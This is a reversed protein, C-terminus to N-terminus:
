STRPMILTRPSGEAVGGFDLTQPLWETRMM